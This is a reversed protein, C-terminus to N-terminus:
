GSQGGLPHESPLQTRLGDIATAIVQDILRERDVWPFAPLAILLSTIGHITAWLVQSTAEVDPAGFYGQDICSRTADRLVDFSPHPFRRGSTPKEPRPMVFAFHYHGPFRLGFDVYARLKKRLSRVPDARDHAQTLSELLKDFSEDVLCELLDNRDKFYLYLSGPSYGIEEALRRM